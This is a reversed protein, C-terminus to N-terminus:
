AQCLLGTNRHKLPHQAHLPQLPQVPHWCACIIEAVPGPTGPPLTPRLQEAAVTYMIQKTLHGGQQMAAFPVQKTLLEWLIVGMSYIDAAQGYNHHMLIEPAMWRLTGVEMIQNSQGDDGLCCLGFDAIKLQGRVNLLLNPSKLDRHML